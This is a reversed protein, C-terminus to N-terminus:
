FHISKEIIKKRLQRPTLRITEKFLECLDEFTFVLNGYYIKQKNFIIDEATKYDDGESEFFDASICDSDPDLKIYDLITQKFVSFLLNAEPSV